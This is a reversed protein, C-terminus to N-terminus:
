RAATATMYDVAAKVEDDSLSANGGKAPMMGSKGTYGKIAHTYLVEKGQAARQEWQTKDTLKPAGAAGSGHCLGCVKKYVAAGDAAAPAAPAAAAPAAPTSAATTAPAPTATAPAAAPATSAPAPAAAPAAPTAPAATAPAPAVPTAPIAAPKAEESKGCAALLAVLLLPAIHQTTPFRTM